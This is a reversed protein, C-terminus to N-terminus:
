QVELLTLKVIYWANSGEVVTTLMSQNFNGLLRVTYNNGFHDYWTYTTHASYLTQLDSLTAYESEPETHRVKVVPEFRKYIHSASIDTGGGVTMSISSAKSLIDDFYGEALIRLRYQIGNADVITGYTVSTSEGETYAPTSAKSDASIYAHISSSKSAQLGNCFAETSDTIATGAVLYAATNNSTNDQGHTSAPTSDAPHKQGKLYAPQPPVFGELYADHRGRLYYSGLIYAPTSDEVYATYGETYAPTSDTIDVQGALYADTSSNGATGGKTYAPTNDTAAEQGTLYAPTKSGPILLFAPTSSSAGLTGTAYAPSSDTTTDQGRLYALYYDTIDASGTLYVPANDTTDISGITYASTNDSNTDQGHLYAPTSDSTNQSGHLFAPTSDDASLPESEPISVFAWSISPNTSAPGTLFAPTSDSATDQGKLYAAQNDLTDDQGKLYVPQNDTATEGGHSYGSQSDLTDTSGHAYATQNDSGIDAGWMFAPTSDNAPTTGVYDVLLYCCDVGADNATNPRDFYVTAADIQAWTTLISSVDISVWQWSGAPPGLGTASSSLIAEFNSTAQGYAYIYLTVSNITESSHGSAPFSYVGSDANRSTSYIYNNPEDQTNIYPPSGTTSWAGTSDENDVYLYLDTM